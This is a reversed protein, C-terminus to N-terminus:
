SFDVGVVELQIDEPWKSNFVDRLYLLVGRGRDQDRDNRYV